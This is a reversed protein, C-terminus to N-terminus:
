VTLSKRGSFIPNITFISRRLSEYLLVIEANLGITDNNLTKPRELIQEKM